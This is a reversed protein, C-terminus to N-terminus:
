MLEPRFIRPDMEKVEDVVPTCGMHALIDRELDIGPAIELLQLGDECLGFVCRETVYLPKKGLRFARKGSYTIQRVDAIFKQAKGEQLIRLKGDVIETELGGATFTGCFVVQRANQSINVFGGAGPFRRSFRSVNVNGDHDAEALGLVALALGGGDYFDFQQNQTVIAETNLATGFDLGNSPQGGIVGPEATLTVHDLWGQEAAVSAVGEPVGIGLNVVGGELPLELAARRAIVKRACLPLPARDSMDMRDSGDLYPSYDTAFTQVHNAPDAVVVVDVLAGPIEVQRAPIQNKGVVREVQAIVIGGCNKAAQAQALNDLRLAEREMSINGNEDATTGRILAVDVKPAQYFLAERGLVNVLHVRDETTRDNVKGGEVRPDAFTEMGVETLVGPKGSAIDRYMHSIVGQPYNYAEIDGNVAMAGLKPALGYHGGITRRVLGPLAVHNMGRDKGDGGAAAFLFTLDRPVGKTEFRNKLAILLEEPVGTGVFGAVTVTDNTGIRKIASAADMIKSSM